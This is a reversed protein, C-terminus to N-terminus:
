VFVQQRSRDNVIFCDSYRTLSPNDVQRIGSLARVASLYYVETNYDDLDNAFGSHINFCALLNLYHNIFDTSALELIAILPAGSLVKVENDISRVNKISANLADLGLKQQLYSGNALEISIDVTDQSTSYSEVSGDSDTFYFKGKKAQGNDSIYANMEGTINNVYVTSAFRNLKTATGQNSVVIKDVLDKVTNDIANNAVKNGVLLAFAISREGITGFDRNTPSLGNKLLRNVQSLFEGLATKMPKSYIKKGNKNTKGTATKRFVVALNADYDQIIADITRYKEVCEKFMNDLKEIDTISSVTYKITMIKLALQDIEERLKRLTQEKVRKEVTDKQSASSMLSDYYYKSSNVQAGSKNKFDMLFADPELM